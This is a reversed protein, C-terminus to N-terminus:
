KQFEIVRVNAKVEGSMKEDITFVMLACLKIRYKLTALDPPNIFNQGPLLSIKIEHWQPTYTMTLLIDPYVIKNSVSIIGHMNQRMFRDGGVYISLLIFLPGARETDVENENSGPDTPQKCLSSYDAARLSIQNHRLYELRGVEVKCYLDVICQQFLYGGQITPSFQHLRQFLHHAYFM